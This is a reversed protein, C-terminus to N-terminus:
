PHPAAECPVDSLIHHKKLSISIHKDKYFLEGNTRLLQMIEQKMEFNLLRVIISSPRQPDNAGPRRQAAPATRPARQGKEANTELGFM